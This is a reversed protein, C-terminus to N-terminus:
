KYFDALVKYVEFTRRCDILASHAGVNPVDFHNCFNELSMGPIETDKVAWWALSMLDLKRHQGFSPKINLDTMNKNIFKLDFEINQGVIICDKVLSNFKILASKINNTYSQPNNIYGNIQLAKPSATVINSPAIKTVWEDTVKDDSPNYILTALEIIEHKQSDLGTTECDVMALNYEFLKKKLANNM